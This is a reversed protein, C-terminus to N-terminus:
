GRGYFGLSHLASLAIPLLPPFHVFPRDAGQPLDMMGIGDSFSKAGYLYHFTDVFTGIGWKSMFLILGSGGVSVLFVFLKPLFSMLANSGHKGFCTLEMYEPLNPLTVETTISITFHAPM